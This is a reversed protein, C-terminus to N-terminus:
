LTQNDFERKLFHHPVPPVAMEQYVQSTSELSRQGGKHVESSFSQCFHVWPIKQDLHPEQHGGASM